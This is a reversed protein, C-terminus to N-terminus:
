NLANWTQCGFSMKGRIVLWPYCSFFCPHIVGSRNSTGVFVPVFIWAVFSAHNFAIIINSNVTQQSWRGRWCCCCLPSLPCRNKYLSPLFSSVSKFKFIIWRRPFVARYVDRVKWQASVDSGPFSVNDFWSANTHYIEQGHRDKSTFTVLEYGMEEVLSSSRWLLGLPYSLYSILVVIRLSLPHGIKM